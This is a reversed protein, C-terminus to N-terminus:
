ASPRTRSFFGASPSATATAVMSDSAVRAARLLAAFGSQPWSSATSAGTLAHGTYAMANHVGVTVALRSPPEHGSESRECVNAACERAFSRFELSVLFKITRTGRQVRLECDSESCPHAFKPNPASAGPTMAAAPRSSSVAVTSCLFPFFHSNRQEIWFGTEEDRGKIQRQGRTSVGDLSATADVSRGRQRKWAVGQGRRARPWVPM